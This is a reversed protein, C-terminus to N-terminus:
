SEMAKKYFAEFKKWRPNAHLPTLRRNRKWMTVQRRIQYAGDEGLSRADTALLRDLWFLALDMRGALVAAAAAQEWHRFPLGGREAHSREFLRAATAHEGRYYCLLAFGIRQDRSTPRLEGKVIENVRDEFPAAASLFVLWQRDSDKQTESRPYDLLSLQKTQNPLARLGAAAERFRGQSIRLDIVSSALKAPVDAGAIRLGEEIAAAEGEIDHNASHAWALARFADVNSSDADIAAECLEIAKEYEGAYAYSSALNRMQFPDAPAYQWAVRATEIARQPYAATRLIWSLNAFEWASPLLRAAETAHKIALKWDRRLAHIMALSGLGQGAGPDLEYGKRYAAIAEDLRRRHLYSSGLYLHSFPEDPFRTVMEKAARELGAADRAREYANCLGYWHQITNPSLECARRYSEAAEAYKRQRTLFLGRDNHPWPWLRRLEIARDIHRIAADWDDKAASIWALQHHFGEYERDVRLARKAFQDAADLDGQDRLLVIKAWLARLSNGNMRLADDVTARALDLDGRDAHVRSLIARLYASQPRLACAAATVQARRALREKDYDAGEGYLNALIWLLWFSDPHAELAREILRAAAEKEQIWRLTEGLELLVREETASVDLNEAYTLLASRDSSELFDFLWQWPGHPEVAQAIAILKEWGPRRKVWGMHRLRAGSFLDAALLRHSPFARIRKAAEEVSLKDLDIGFETYVSGLGDIRHREINEERYEQMRALFRRDRELMAATADATKKGAQIRRRVEEAREATAPAHAAEVAGNIAVLAAAWQESGQLETAKRIAARATAERTRERERADAANWLYAGGGLVVAVLLVAAITITGRRAKAAAEARRRAAAARANAKTAAAKAEAAAAREEEAALKEAALKAREEQEAALAQAAAIEARRAQEEERALQVAIRRALRNANRPREASATSLCKKALAVLAEPADSQDLRECADTTDGRAAMPLLDRPEGVYPPAGTLIECLIAGLSFVDAREDLDDVQGLAQEPPMYAPTGMVSGAISHSGDEGSRVTAIVTAEASRERTPEARGLVKAFGWDMVQVEGFAGVMINAPKLDRHIVGRSHAYGVTHCIREFLAIFFPGRDTVQEREQLLASLTAGKVLKMAFYPRGDAQVGLGYVPVVGPHQLQGTVQAEEVFRDLIDERESYENRLVKLAVDRGLDRDHGKFIVGVGGRAIEGIVSYRRDRAETEGAQPVRLVPTEDAGADQLLIRSVTGSGQEIRELVSAGEFAERLAGEWNDETAM